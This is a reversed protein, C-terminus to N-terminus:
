LNMTLEMKKLKEFVATTVLVTVCFEPWVISMMIDVLPLKWLMSGFAVRLINSLMLTILVVWLRSLRSGPQYFNLRIFTALYACVVYIFVYMGLPSVGFADRLLGAIIATYLSYRIGSYLNFFVILLLLFDPKFWIGLFNYMMYELLFAVYVTIPIILIKRM